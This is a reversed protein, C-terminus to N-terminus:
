RSAAAIAAESKAKSEQGDVAAFQLNEQLFSVDWQFGRPQPKFRSLPLRSAPPTSPLHNSSYITHPQTDPM